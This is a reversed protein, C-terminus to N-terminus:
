KRRTRTKKMTPEESQGVEELKRKVPTKSAPRRKKSGLNSMDELDSKTKNAAKKAAARGRPKVPSSVTEETAEVTAKKGRKVKTEKVLTGAEAEGKSSAAKRGRKPAAPLPEEEKDAKDEADVAKKPRGRRKSPM